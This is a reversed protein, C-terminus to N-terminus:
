TKNPHDYVFKIEDRKFQGSWQGQLSAQISSVEYILQEQVVKTVRGRSGINADPALDSVKIVKVLDDVELEKWCCFCLEEPLRNASPRGYKEYFDELNVVRLHFINECSPCRLYPM